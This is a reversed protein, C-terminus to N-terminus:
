FWWSLEKTKLLFWIATMKELTTYSKREKKTFNSFITKLKGLFETLVDKVKAYYETCDMKGFLNSEGISDCIYKTATIYDIVPTSSLSITFEPGKQPLSDRCQYTTQQLPKLGMHGENPWQRTDLLSYYTKFYYTQKTKKWRTPMPLKSFKKKQTSSSDMFKIFTEKQHFKINKM